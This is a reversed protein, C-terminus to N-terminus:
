QVLCQRILEAFEDARELPTFHGTGPSFHVTVATFYEGLRDAWKPPFLPDRDGWLVHTPTTILPGRRPSSEALSHAVTGAGARYWGISATFAGPSGYHAALRDVDGDSPTFKPGSWHTWFHRLYARVVDPKGDILEDALALQHFSQYWFEQQAKVELIRQGVGPLPPSVVLAAFQQPRQSAVLQAIRSGIDYGGIVV